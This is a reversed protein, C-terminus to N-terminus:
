RVKMGLGRGLGILRVAEATARELLEAAQAMAAELSLPGDATSLLAAIGRDHLLAADATLAGSIVVVPVGQAAARRAVGLPVKGSLTQGDTRGEGTLVLDVQALLRDLGAAEGVLDIGPRITAALFGILGAGLGGAAGAGPLDRVDRGTQAAMLDAWRTLARDLLAVMEPTAGKQPGYVASAGQPGTLPNTVDCAVLLEAQTLRPNLGSLEIRDLALLAAGGPPLESGDAALLRAGLAQLMGAGGDNTASGGIGIIIRRAGRDLAHLLLEGTGYTSTVRPDRREPPVLLLGSAAAMEIVATEGDGLLGWNASVQDGLPGRVLSTLREGGTAAVLADVTGEGGDAMPLPYVAAGPLAARVGRGMAAAAEAATLSGKFSDPAVLIRM